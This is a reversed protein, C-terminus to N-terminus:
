VDVCGSCNKTKNILEQAKFFLEQAKCINDYRVNAEAARLLLDINTLKDALDEDKNKCILNLNIYMKDLDLETLETRLHKRTKYFKDPSAKLTIEYIGDPLDIYEEDFCDGTPCNINLNISNFINIKRKDFYEVVPKSEGPLIIEIISPKSETVGWTSYDAISLVKPYRTKLVQFDINIRELKM